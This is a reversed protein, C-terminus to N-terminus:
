RKRVKDAILIPPGPANKFLLGRVSVTNGDALGSVGTIGGEFQTQSSTQVQILTIGASTFLSPLSGVNFNNGIPSGAVKGTFRSLRLRVRDTSVSIPPGLTVSRVRVEVRQGVLLQSTDTAGEFASQLGSPVPLGNNDVRFSAGSALTVTIPFGIDLGTVARLEEGIAMKFQTPSDISFIIGEVEDDALEDELEIKKALFVGAPLTTMLRLDVEVVQGNQVCTFNNAACGEFDDFETTTDVKVTLTGRATVLSFQNNTADKNSVVGLVDEIEELEGTGQPASIQTVTVGGAALFNVGLANDLLNNLNVDVLLGTPSNGTLMLPFPPNSSITVTGAANPKIECVAGNPCGALTAGTDNKFTLEPNAFTIAIDKYTDARVNVTSLFAAETELRKVEIQVPASVLSVDPQGTNSHLVAGTITVEFTLVTVNAPPTDTMSLSLPATGAGGSSSIKMSGGSCGALVAVVLLSFFVFARFVKM